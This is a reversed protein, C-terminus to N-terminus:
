EAALIGARQLEAVAVRGVDGAVDRTADPNFTQSTASWILEETAVEYVNM